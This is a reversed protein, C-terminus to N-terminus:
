VSSGTGYAGVPGVVQPHNNMSETAQQQRMQIQQAQRILSGAQEDTYGGAVLRSKVCLEEMGKVLTGVLSCLQADDAHDFCFQLAHEAMQLLAERDKLHLEM